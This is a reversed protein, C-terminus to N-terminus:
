SPRRARGRGSGAAPRAPHEKASRLHDYIRQDLTDLAAITDAVTAGQEGDAPTDPAPPPPPDPYLDDASAGHVLFPRTSGGQVTVSALFTHRKLNTITAPDIAAGFERALLAAGRANLASTLLHSRNTTIADLTAPTLREPNQNFLFARIGYKATQELMAALNGSAAGDFTQVEDLFVYFPRRAQPALTARTKAAHLVDYVLFNAILRDRTSGSGPCALVIKGDDMAARVDYSSVPNGLVAAIAPAIRLRDILNTVPTIAERSLLPFRERFFTRTPPSVHPLVTNRWREDGLLTPIQFITPALEAPLGAALDILAKASQTTLNLARANVENWRLASSFADVVADLRQEATGADAAFLNWGIQREAVHDAFNVVVLRAREDEGLYHQIREIADEHPDLFFCGCGTRALHLFQGIGTETKGYRSRGAMYSFFTGEVPLGVLRQGGEGDRVTGLPILDRQGTFSPLARAPAPIAGGSRLVNASDCGATPPKLLGAIETATVIRRRAPAFLGSRVRRDFRRRRWPADAGLFAAGGPLRLGRARFHNEGAFQDFGALLRGLQGVARGRVPSSVRVLVQIEFLPDPTGLKSSITEHEIRHEVREAPVMDSRRRPGGVLEDLGGALAHRRRQSRAASSLIRRRERRRRGPGIPLLDVCVAATEDEPRLTALAQAFGSLPDPDIGIERLPAASPRALVLEARAVEVGDGDFEAPDTRDLDHLEVQGYGAAAIGLAARAHNPLEVVYRLQGVEDTELRVRVAAARPTLIDRLRRTRSLTAAFRVVAEVDPSFTDAPVLAVRVRRRLAVRTARVRVVLVVIALLAIAGAGAPLLPSGAAVSLADLFRGVISSLVLGAVGLAAMVLVM